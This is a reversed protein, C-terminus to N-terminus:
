IETCFNLKTGVRIRATVKERCVNCLVDIVDKKRKLAGLSSGTTSLQTKIASIVEGVDAGLLRETSDKKEGAFFSCHPLGTCPPAYPRPITPCVLCEGILRRLHEKYVHLVSAHDLAGPELRHLGSCLILM